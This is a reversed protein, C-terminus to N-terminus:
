TFVATEYVDTKNRLIVASYFGNPEPIDELLYFNNCGKGLGEFVLSFYIRGNKVEHYTWQPMRSINFAKILKRRKGTDEILFTEPWIRLFRPGDSILHCHVITCRETEAQISELIEADIDIRPKAIKITNM